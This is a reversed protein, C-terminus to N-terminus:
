INRYSEPIRLAERGAAGDKEGTSLISDTNGVYALERDSVEYVWSSM